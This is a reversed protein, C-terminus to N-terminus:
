YHIWFQSFLLVCSMKLSRSSSWLLWLVPFLFCFVFHFTRVFFQILYNFYFYPFLLRSPEKLRTIIPKNDITTGHKGMIGSDYYNMRQICSISWDSALVSTVHDRNVLSLGTDNMRQPCSIGWAQVISRVRARMFGHRCLLFM